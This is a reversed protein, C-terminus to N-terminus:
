YNHIISISIDGLSTPSQASWTPPFIGYTEIHVGTSTMSASSNQVTGSAKANVSFPIGTINSLNGTSAITATGTGTIVCNVFVLRGIKTYSGSATISGTGNVITFSNLIPTWTGEEYDDLTNADSSSLQTAPFAIGTGSSITGSPLVFTKGNQTYALPNGDGDSLVIYNSATRIDLGGQNGNYGGLVTNKSGTTIYYGAQYGVATNYSATTNSYLSQYGVATNNSATTNSALAAGGLATNANGTTNSQGVGNSAGDLGGVFTNNAGTTNAFGSAVGVFANGGGTTTAKGAQYGLFLQYQATTNSYGAQYGVATNNSATLNSLLASMGVATNSSGSSNSYLATDGIATNQTGGTTNATLALYGFASNRGSSTNVALAGNGVATAIATSSGGKGVTLGSISADNALTFTTGNFTMNASDTLLGGTTAYTVRGSTLATNTLTTFAGTSPTTAGISTSNITSSTITSNTITDTSIPPSFFVGGPGVLGLCNGNVDFEAQVPVINQTSTTAVKNSSM